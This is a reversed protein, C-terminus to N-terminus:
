VIDATDVVGDDLAVMLSALKFTSGPEPGEGVAYNLKEYYYGESTRGLNVMALIRGTSVEMVVACGHDAEFTELTNLLARHAVDQIRTNITTIIDQGNQPEIANEDDLPKWNGNSIKQMLRHGDRGSLYHNYSGELGVQGENRDYGITREAIKGLPMKRFHQQEIIMGGKYKGLGFLPFQRMRNMQVFTLDEALRVY